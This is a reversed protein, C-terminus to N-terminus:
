ASRRAEAIIAARDLHKWSLAGQIYQVTGECVGFREATERQFEMGTLAVIQKAQEETLRRRGHSEGKLRTGHAVMDAKNEASTAWRIHKKNCCARVGCWHAAEHDASPPEGHAITCILRHADQKKGEYRVRGYGRATHYPWLLCEDGEYPIVEEIFYRQCEGNDTRKKILPDGYRQLRHYHGNCLGRTKAPRPCDSVSCQDM